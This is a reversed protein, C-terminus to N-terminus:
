LFLYLTWWLGIGFVVHLVMQELWTVSIIGEFLLM